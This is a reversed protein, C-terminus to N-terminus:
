RQWKMWKSVDTRPIDAIVVVVVRVAAAVVEASTPPLQASGGTENLPRPRSSVGQNDVVGYLFINVSIGVHWENPVKNVQM